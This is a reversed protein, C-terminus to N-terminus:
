NQTLKKEKKAVLNTEPKLYVILKDLFEGQMVIDIIFFTQYFIKKDQTYLNQLLQFLPAQVPSISLDISLYKTTLCQQLQKLAGM